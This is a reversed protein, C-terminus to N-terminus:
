GSTHWHHYNKERFFHVGSEHLYDQELYLWCDSFTAIWFCLKGLNLLLSNNWVHVFLKSSMSSSPHHCCDVGPHLWGRHYDWFATNVSTNLLAGGSYGFQKPCALGRWTSLYCVVINTTWLSGIHSVASQDPPSRWRIPTKVLSPSWLSWGRTGSGFSTPSDFVPESCTLWFTM